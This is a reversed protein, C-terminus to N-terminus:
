GVLLNMEPYNIGSEHKENTLSWLFTMVGVRGILMLLILIIKGIFTLSPTLGMTLGVTGICSFVEILIYEIEFGDPITETNLLIFTALSAILMGSSFIFFARRITDSSISRNLVNSHNYNISRYIVLIIVFLTTVKIGGGTSGSSAGIFMLVTTLFLSGLSLNAYDVNAYGATRPTVSLFFYNALQDSWSLHSFTGNNHETIWFLFTGLIWLSLTTTLVIKSYNSLKRTKRYSILDEWVIFGLGGAMILSAIVLLIFPNSQYDILSNGILDFGANCFASISHFVSYYIGKGIGFEPLFVFGLLFAGILQVTLAFRVISFVKQQVSDGGSLSLSESVIRRQRLNPRHKFLYYYFVIWITMFGLGGIEILTIIVTKGFYNWHTATNLTVQGTVATASTATFLADIFSTWEGSASSFPLWLLLAGCTIVFAYAIVITQAISLKKLFNSM